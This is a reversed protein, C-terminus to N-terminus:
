KSHLYFKLKTVLGMFHLADVHKNANVRILHVDLHAKAKWKQDRDFNMHLAQHKFSSLLRPIGKKRSQILTVFAACTLNDTYNLTQVLNLNFCM